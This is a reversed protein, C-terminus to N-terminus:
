TDENEDTIIITEEYEKRDVIGLSILKEVAAHLVDAAQAALDPLAARQEPTLLELARSAACANATFETLEAINIVSVYTEDVDAV